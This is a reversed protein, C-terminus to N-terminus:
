DDDDDPPVPVLRTTGDHERLLVEVRQEIQALREGLVRVLAMGREFAVLSEELPLEGHELRAVITELEGLTDEFRAQKARRAM